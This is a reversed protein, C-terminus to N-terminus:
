KGCVGPSWSQLHPIPCTTASTTKGPQLQAELRNSEMNPSFNKAHANTQPSPSTRKALSGVRRSRSWIMSDATSLLMTISLM